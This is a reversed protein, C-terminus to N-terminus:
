LQMLVEDLTRHGMAVGETIGMDILTNMSAIDQFSIITRVKTRGDKESFETTFTSVPMATNKNFKEDTFADVAIYSESPVIKQYDMSAWHKEGEPGQMYYLWRGGETFSFSETVAIWPKPAWWKELITSVTFAKWVKEKPADFQREMTLTKDAENKTFVTEFM